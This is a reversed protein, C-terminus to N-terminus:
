RETAEEVNVRLIRRRLKRLAREEIIRVDDASLPENSFGLMCFARGTQELTM